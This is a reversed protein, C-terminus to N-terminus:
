DTVTVTAAVTAAVTVTDATGTGDFWSFPLIEGGGLSPAPTVVLWHPHPCAAQARHHAFTNTKGLVSQGSFM